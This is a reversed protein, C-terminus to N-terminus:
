GCGVRECGNEVGIGCGQRGQEAEAATEARVLVGFLAADSYPVYVPVAGTGALPSSGAAWKLTPTTDLHAHLAALEPAAGPVGFGVFIAQGSGHADVRTEGGFYQSSGSLAAAGSPLSALHNEVLQSLQAPDVCTGTAAVNGKTFASAALAKVADLSKPSPHAAFLSSGLGSSRFTLAHALELAHTAPDSLAATSETISTPLVSEVLEHPLFQPSTLVSSLLEVFYLSYPPLLGEYQKILPHM